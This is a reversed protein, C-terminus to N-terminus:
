SRASVPLRAWVVKGEPCTRVGWQQSIADVLRLGRGGARLPGPHPTLPVTTSSDGVEVLVTGPQISVILEGHSRTHQSVNQVLESIVIMVDDIWEADPEQGAAPQLASRASHRLPLAPAGHRFQHRLLEVTNGGERM